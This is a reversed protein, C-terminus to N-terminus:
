QSDSRELTRFSAKKGLDEAAEMGGERVNAYANTFRENVEVEETEKLATRDIKCEGDYREACTWKVGLYDEGVRPNENNRRRIGTDNLRRLVEM